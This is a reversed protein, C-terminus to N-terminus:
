AISDEGDLNWELCKRALTRKAIGLSLAADRRSGDVKRLRDVVVMREITLLAQPLNDTRMLDQLARAMSGRAPCANVSDGTPLEGVLSSRIRRGPETREAATLVLSRLERVNGPFAYAQLRALANASIGSVSGQRERNHHLLVHAVLAPVDEPRERLPPIHLTHQRIRFYLDERFSGDRVLDPLSRHTACILRFDSSQERSAGVPRFKKENLLRLLTGQLGLPMDGIEDLFLTGGDAEAVLGKRAQLAGTYAGRTAGFLEAEILDKPIAACNVPVFNGQRASAQHILWAAHDKGSGTEGTILLSLSSDALRLMEARLKKASAGVGIFGGALLRSARAHGQEVERRQDAARERLAQASEGHQEHLRGAILEHCRFVERWLRDERWSRLAADQGVIVAVGHAAQQIEGAIPLVLMAEAGAHRERLAEFGAGVDVLRGLREVHCPKNSMLGYVLPNDLEVLSITPLTGKSGSHDAVPLLRDGGLERWYCYGQDIGPWNCLYSLFRRAAAELDAAQLLERMLIAVDMAEM